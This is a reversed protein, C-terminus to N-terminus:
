IKLIQIEGTARVKLEVGGNELSRKSIILIYPCGILEADTLKAGM